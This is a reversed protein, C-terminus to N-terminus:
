PCFAVLLALLSGFFGVGSKKGSQKAGMLRVGFVFLSISVMVLMALLLGTLVEGPETNWILRGFLIHIRGGKGGLIMFVALYFVAMLIGSLLAKREKLANKIVSLIQQRDRIIHWKKIAIAVVIAALFVSIGNVTLIVM